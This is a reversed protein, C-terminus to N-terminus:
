AVPVSSATHLLITSSALVSVGVAEPIYDRRAGGAVGRSVALPGVTIVPEDSRRRHRSAVLKRVPFDPGPYALTSARHPNEAAVLQMGALSQRSQLCAAARVKVPWAKVAWEQRASGARVQLRAVLVQPRAVLVQLRAVLVQLPVVLAQPAAVRVRTAWPPQAVM